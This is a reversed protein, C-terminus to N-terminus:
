RSWALCVSCKPSSFRQEFGVRARPPEYGRQSFKYTLKALTLAPKVSCVSQQDLFLLGASVQRHNTRLHSLGARARGPEWGRMSSSFQVVNKELGM